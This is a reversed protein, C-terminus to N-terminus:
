AVCTWIKNEESIGAVLSFTLKWAQLGNIVVDEPERELQLCPFYLALIKGAYKNGYALQLHFRNESGGDNFCDPFNDATFGAPLAQDDHVTITVVTDQDTLVWANIGYDSNADPDAVYTRGLSVSANLFRLATGATNGYKALLFEGGATVTPRTSTPATRAKQNYRTFRGVKLEFDITQAEAVGVEPLTFNGVAGFYEYMQGAKAADTTNRKLVDGQLVHGMADETMNIGIMGNLVDGATPAAPLALALTMEDVAYSLIPRVYTRGALKHAIFGKARNNGANTEAIVTTTPVTAAKVTTGDVLYPTAGLAGALLQAMVCTDLVPVDLDDLESGYGYCYTSFSISSEEFALGKGAEHKGLDASRAAQNEIPAHQLNTQLNWTPIKQKVAEFDAEETLWTTHEELFSVVGSDGRVAPPM